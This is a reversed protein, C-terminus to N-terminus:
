RVVARGGAKVQLDLRDELVVTVGRQSSREHRAVLHAQLGPVRGARHVHGVRDDVRGAVSRGTRDSELDQSGGILILRGTGAVNGRPGGGALGGADRHGQVANVRVTIRHAQSAHFGRRLLSGRGRLGRPDFVRRVLVGGSRIGEGVRNLIALAPAGRRAHADAHRGKGGQVLVRHGQGIRNEGAGIADHGDVDQRVIEVRITIRQAQLLVAELRGGRLESRLQAGGREDLHVRGGLRAGVEHGVRDTVPVSARRSAGQRDVDLIVRRELCRNGAVVEDGVVLQGGVTGRHAHVDELVVLVGVARHVLQAHGDSRGAHANGAGLQQDGDRLRLAQDDVRDRVGVAQGVRGDHRDWSTVRGSGEEAGRVQGNLHICAGGDRDVQRVVDEGTGTATGSQDPPGGRNRLSAEIGNRHIGRRLQRQGRVCLKPTAGSELDLHRVAVVRIRRRQRCEQGQGHADLSRLVLRGGEGRRRDADLGPTLGDRLVECERHAVGFTDIRRGEGVRHTRHGATHVGGKVPTDQRHGSRRPHSAARGTGDRHADGVLVTM